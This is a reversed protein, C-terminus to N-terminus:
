APIHSKVFVRGRYSKLQKERKLAETRSFAEESYILEWIGDFRSTYGKLSRDNHLNIREQM